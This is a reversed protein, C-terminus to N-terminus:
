LKLFHSVTLYVDLKNIYTHSIPTVPAKNTKLVYHM